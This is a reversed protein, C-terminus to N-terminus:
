TPTGGLVNGCVCACLFVNYCFSVIVFTAVKRFYCRFITTELLNRFYHGGSLPSSVGVGM